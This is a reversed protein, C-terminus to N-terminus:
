DKSERAGVLTSWREESTMGNQTGTSELSELSGGSDFEKKRSIRDGDFEQGPCKDLKQLTSCFPLGIVHWDDGSEKGSLFSM